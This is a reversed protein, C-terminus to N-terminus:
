FLKDFRIKYISKQDNLPVVDIKINGMIGIYKKNYRKDELLPVDPRIPKLQWTIQKSMGKPVDTFKDQQLRKYMNILAPDKIKKIFPYTM